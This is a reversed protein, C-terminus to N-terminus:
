LAPRQVENEVVTQLFREVEEAVQSANAQITRVHEGGAVEVSSWLPKRRPRLSEYWLRSWHRPIVVDRDGHIWLLPRNRLRILATWIARNFRLPRTRVLLRFAALLREAPGTPVRGLELMAGALGWASVEMTPPPGSDFIVADVDSRKGCAFAVISAGQSQGLCIVREAGRRRIEDIAAEVDAARQVFCDIGIPRASSSGHGRADFALTDVGLRQLQRIWPLTAAKQGGYHHHLVVGLAHRSFRGEQAKPVFWGSLRLGDSTQLNVQEHDLRLLKPSIRMERRMARRFREGAISTHERVQRLSRWPAHKLRLKLRASLENTPENEM